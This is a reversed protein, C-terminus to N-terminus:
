IDSSVDRGNKMTLKPNREGSSVTTLGNEGSRGPNNDAMSFWKEAETMDPQVGKGYRYMLGLNYQADALGQLAAKRYHTEAIRFDQTVGLGKEYLVGLNNHSATYGLASAKEYWEAALTYNQGVGKGYHYAWGLYHQAAAQGQLAAMRFWRFADAYEHKIKMTMGLLCQAAIDGKEADHRLAAIEQDNDTKDTGAYMCAPSGALITCVLLATAHPRMIM